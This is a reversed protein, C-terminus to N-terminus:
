LVPSPFGNEAFRLLECISSPSGSKCILLDSRLLRAFFLLCSYVTELM